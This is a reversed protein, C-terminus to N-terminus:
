KKWEYINKYVNGADCDPAPTIINSCILIGMRFCIPVFPINQLFSSTFAELTIKGGVFETYAAATTDTPLIGKVVGDSALAASLNMNEPLKIEGIYFDYDGNALATTYADWTLETITINIGVNELSQKIEKAAAVKFNNGSYVILRYNLNDKFGANKMLDKAKSYDLVLASTDFQEDNIVHWEPHYPIASEVAHKKFSNTVVSQRNISYYVAQRMAATSLGYSNSNIGLFVLNSLNTKATQANAQSYSGSAMNDFYADITGLELTHILTSSPPISILNVTTLNPYPLRSYPNHQLKTDSGTKVIKYLGTGVPLSNADNATQTKVIPFTLSDVANKNESRLTFVVTDASKATASLIDSLENKYMDSNKALNFSYIVDASSFQIGDSFAVSTSLRVTLATGDTSYSYALSPRACFTDDLYFLPEFILPMIDSNLDTATFYPNLSDEASFGINVSGGTTNIPKNVPVSGSPYEPEDATNECGTFILAFLVLSLAAAIIRNLAFRKQESRKAQKTILKM